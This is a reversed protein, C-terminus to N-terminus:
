PSEPMDQRPSRTLLRWGMALTALPVVMEAAVPHWFHVSVLVEALVMLFAVDLAAGIALCEFWSHRTVFRWILAGPGALVAAIVLPARVGTPLSTVTALFSACALAGLLAVGSRESRVLSPNM